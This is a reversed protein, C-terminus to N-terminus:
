FSMTPEVSYVSAQVIRSTSSKVGYACVSHVYGAVYFISGFTQIAGRRVGGYEYITSTPQTSTLEIWVVLDEGTDEGIGAACYTRMDSSAWCYEM